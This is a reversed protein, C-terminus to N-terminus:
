LALPTNEKRQANLFTLYKCFLYTFCVTLQDKTEVGATQSSNNSYYNQWHHGVRTMKKLGNCYFYICTM